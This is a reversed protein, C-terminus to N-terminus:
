LRAKARRLLWGLGSVHEYLGGTSDWFDQHLVVKGAANFRVHSMGASVVDEGRALRKFRVTMVWRFYYDGDAGALDVFEVTGQALAEATAVFHKEIEAAGHLTKLTDNFFADEAYVDGIRSAFDPATYDSLLDQFRAVALREEESGPELAAGAAQLERVAELYGRWADRTAGRPAASCGSLLLLLCAAGALSTTPSRRRGRRALGYPPWPRMAAWGVEKAM